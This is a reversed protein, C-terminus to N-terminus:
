LVCEALKLLYTLQSLHRTVHYNLKVVGFYEIQWVKSHYSFKIHM